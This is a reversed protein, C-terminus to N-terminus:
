REYGLVEMNKKVTAESMNLLRTWINREKTCSLGMM